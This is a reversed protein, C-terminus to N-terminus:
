SGKGSPGLSPEFLAPRIGLALLIKFLVDFSTRRIDKGSELREIRAQSVGLREALTRQSIGFSKRAAKIRELVLLKQNLLELDLGVHISNTSIM